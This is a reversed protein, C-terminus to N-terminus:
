PIPVEPRDDGSPEPQYEIRSQVAGGSERYKWVTEPGILQCLGHNVVPRNGTSYSPWRGTALCQAYERLAITYKCRGFEIFEATLQPMPKVVHFPPTNEQLPLVWDQRDEGTAKCYLDMSLAAQVDYGSEDVVRGFTDPNGNRATKSDALTKGWVPHSADPVLDLLARVPILLQTAKDKWVGVVMVQKKSIAVLEARPAHAKAAKVAVGSEAMVKPSIVTIGDRARQEEWEKCHDARVTWPKESRPDRTTPECPYTEPHVEFLKDFDQPNMELCEALRGFDTAKTGEDTSPSLLWKEPCILFEALESRSMIFAPDGKKVGEGQRSYVAYSIGSGIIKASTIM